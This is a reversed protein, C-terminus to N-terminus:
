WEYKAEIDMEKCTDVFLDRLYDYDPKENFKLKRCYKIYKKFCEPLDKCLKDLGTCMKMEGIVQIHDKDKKKKLGQWPLKGKLFYVLMYGVSELDDRRAPEIGMHMNISAYRATGILSRNTRYALHDGESDIYEKSLGFDMIYLKHKNGEKGIMFNNPKIDRHVYKAAHLKQLLNIIEIGLLLVTSVKFKRDFKTFLDDLNKGLLEMILINFDGAKIYEYVKPIGNKFGRRRINKYVKYEYSIRPYESKDEVKAAVYNNTQKDKTLYVEGFSGSGLKELLAYNDLLIKNPADKKDTKRSGKKSDRKNDKRSDKKDSKKGM